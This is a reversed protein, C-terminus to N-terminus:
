MSSATCMRALLACCEEPIVSSPLPQHHMTVAQQLATCGNRGLLAQWPCMSSRWARYAVSCSRQVIADLLSPCCLFCRLCHIRRAVDALRSACHLLCARVHWCTTKRATAWLWPQARLTCRWKIISMVLRAKQSVSMQFDGGTLRDQSRFHFSPGGTSLLVDSCCRCPMTQTVATDTHM